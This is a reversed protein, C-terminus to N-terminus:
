TSPSSGTVSTYCLTFGTFDKGGAAFTGCILCLVRTSQM